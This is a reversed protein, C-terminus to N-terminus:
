TATADGEQPSDGGLSQGENGAAIGQDFGGALGGSGAPRNWSLLLLLLALLVLGTAVGGVAFAVLVHRKPPAERPPEPRFKPTGGPKTTAAASVTATPAVATAPTTSFISILREGAISWKNEGALRVETEPRLRGRRALYALEDDAFPGAPAGDLKCYWESM